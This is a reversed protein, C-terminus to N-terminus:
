NRVKVWGNEEARVASALVEGHDEGSLCTVLAASGLQGRWKLGVFRPGGFDPLAYASWKRSIEGKEQAEAVAARWEVQWPQQFHERENAAVRDDLKSM